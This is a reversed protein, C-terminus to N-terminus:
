GVPLRSGHGSRGRHSRGRSNTIADRRIQGSRAARARPEDPLKGRDRPEDPLKGGTGHNVRPGRTCRPDRYNTPRHRIPSKPHQYRHPCPEAGLKFLARMAVLPSGYRWGRLERIRRHLVRYSDSDENPCVAPPPRYTTPPGPDNPAFRNARVARGLARRPEDASLRQAHTRPAAFEHSESHVWSIVIHGVFVEQGSVFDSLQAPSGRPGDAVSNGETESRLGQAPPLTTEEETPAVHPAPELPAM